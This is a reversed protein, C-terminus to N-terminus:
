TALPTPHQQTFRDYGQQITFLVCSSVLWFRPISSVTKYILGYQVNWCIYLLFKAYSFNKKKKQM